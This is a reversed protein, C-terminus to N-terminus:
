TNKQGETQFSCYFETPFNCVELYYINIAQRAPITLFVLLCSPPFHSPVLSCPLSALFLFGPWSHLPLVASPVKSISFWRSSHTTRSELTQLKGFPLWAAHVKFHFVTLYLQQTKKAAGLAHTLERALSLSRTVATVQTVAATVVGRPWWPVGCMCNKYFYKSAWPLTCLPNSPHMHSRFNDM